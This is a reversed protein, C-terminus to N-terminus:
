SCLPLHLGTKQSDDIEPIASIITLSIFIPQGSCLSSDAAIFFFRQKVSDDYFWHYM